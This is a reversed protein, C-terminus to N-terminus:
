NERSDRYSDVADLKAELMEYVCAYHANNENVQQLEDIQATM